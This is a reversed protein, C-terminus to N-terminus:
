SRCGRASLVARDAAAADRHAHRRADQQPRPDRFALPRRHRSAGEPRGGRAARIYGMAAVISLALFIGLRLGHELFVLPRFGGGRLHQRWSNPFFGYIERNLQPSMRVEWLTPLSYALAAAFLVGLLMIQERPHALYKRAMFFPLLAVLGALVVGAGDYPRLGPLVTVGFRPHSPDGYHLSDSNALVTLFPSAILVLVLFKLLRQQPLWGPLAYAPRQAAQGPGTPRTLLLAILLAPLSAALEREYKPLLPLDFGARTPLVLYGVVISIAIAKPVTTLRFLVFVLVPWGFLVIYAFTNPM